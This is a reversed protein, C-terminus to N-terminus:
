AEFAADSLDQNLQGHAVAIRTAAQLDGRTLADASERELQELVPLCGLMAYSTYMNQALSNVFNSANEFPTMRKEKQTSM